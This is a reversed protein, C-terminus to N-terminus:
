YTRLCIFVSVVNWWYGSHHISTVKLDGHIKWMGIGAGNLADNSGPQRGGKDHMIYNRFVKTFCCLLITKFIYIVLFAITIIYYTRKDDIIMLANFMTTESQTYIIHYMLIVTYNPTSGGHSNDVSSSPPPQPTDLGVLVVFDLLDQTYPKSHSWSTDCWLVESFGFQPVYFIHNM